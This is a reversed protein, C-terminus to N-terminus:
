VDHFQMGLCGYVHLKQRGVEKSWKQRSDKAVKRIAISAAM